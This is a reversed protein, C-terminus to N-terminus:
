KAPAITLQDIVRSVGKTNKAIEVARDRGAASAVTGKLTVIHNNTDANIASGKLLDENVFDTKVKTTIWADTINAGDGEGADRTKVGAKKGATGTARAADATKEGVKEAANGTKEGAKHMASETKDGAKNMAKDTKDGAKDMAKDTKDGAKDMARATASDVKLKNEVNTVGTVKALSAARLNQAESHVTGTLTVVGNDVAVDIDTDKLTASSKLRSEIRTKLAGDDVKAAGATSATQALAAPPAFALGAVAMAGILNRVKM